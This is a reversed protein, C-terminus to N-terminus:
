VAAFHEETITSYLEGDDVLENVIARVDAVGAGSAKQAIADLHMGEPGVAVDRLMALVAERLEAGAPPGKPAMVPAVLPAADAPKTTTVAAADDVGEMAAAAAYPNAAAVFAGQQKKEPSIDAPMATADDVREKKPAPTAPEKENMARATSQLKLAAHVAEIVHYSVEDVSEVPRVGKLALHQVPSARAEGFASVYCGPVIRELASDSPDSLFWRGKIRGTADNLSVELSAAQRSVSEVAAVVLVMQAEACGHFKLEEGTEGRREFAAEISRITVPLCTEKVEPRPRKAADSSFSQTPATSDMSGLSSAGFGQSGFMAGSSFMATYQSGQQLHEVLVRFALVAQAL